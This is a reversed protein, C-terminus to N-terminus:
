VPRPTHDAYRMAIISLIGLILFGAAIPILTNNYLQGILAGLPIAIASSIAGIVASAIGAIHGMPEMAISNLNGFMLGFCFFLTGVYTLFMWLQVTILLNVGLFLFSAAILTLAARYCIYRMGLKEVFKSNVLSSVGFVLALCGFYVTFLAGTNFQVQFIQQCSNLYGILSGFILGVCVTYGITIRNSVVEKFGHLISAWKFPIRNEPALTEDLRLFLWLGVVISYIIYLLFIYRWSAIFLIGQGLTPAIAPVMIFIMMVLSMVRAMERGSYKDRVISMTSVYPGAVGLGQIFRGVLLLTFSPALFCIVSGVLYFGIGLYLVKKRGIADSLPGCVLEGLMMGIFIFSVVYQVHNQHTVQLDAGIIGLAPLMADISIAVISMLVAMLITFEKTGVTRPKVNKM